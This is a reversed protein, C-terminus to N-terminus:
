VKNEKLQQQFYIKLVVLVVFERTTKCDSVMSECASEKEEVDM